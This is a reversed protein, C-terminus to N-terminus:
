WSRIDVSTKIKAMRDPTLYFRLTKKSQMERIVLSTTCKNLHKEAMRYDETSFEKVRYGMKLFINKNPIKKM